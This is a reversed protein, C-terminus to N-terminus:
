LARFGRQFGESVRVSGMEPGTLSCVLTSIVLAWLLQCTICDLSVQRKDMSM